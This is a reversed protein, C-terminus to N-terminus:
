YVKIQINSPSHNQDGVVDNVISESQYQIEDTKSSDISITIGSAFHSKVAYIPDKDIIFNFLLLRIGQFLVNKRTREFRELMGRHSM